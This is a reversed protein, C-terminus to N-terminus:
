PLSKSVAVNPLPNGKDAGDSDLLYEDPQFRFLVALSGPERRDNSSQSDTQTGRRLTPIHKDEWNQTLKLTSTLSHDDIESLM